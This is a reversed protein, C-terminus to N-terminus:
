TMPSSPKSTQLTLPTLTQLLFHSWSTEGRIHFEQYGKDTRITGSISCNEVDNSYVKPRADIHFHGLEPHEKFVRDIDM